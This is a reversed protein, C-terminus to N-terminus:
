IEMSAKKRGLTFGPELAQRSTWAVGPRIAERAQIAFRPWPPQWSLLHAVPLCAPLAMAHGTNPHPLQLGLGQAPSM